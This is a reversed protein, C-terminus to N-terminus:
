LFSPFSRVQRCRHVSHSFNPRINCMASLDAYSLAFATQSIVARRRSKAIPFIRPVGYMRLWMDTCRAVVLYEELENTKLVSISFSPSGLPLVGSKLAPASVFALFVPWDPKYTRGVPGNKRRFV